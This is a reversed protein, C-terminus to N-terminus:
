PAKFGNASFYVNAGTTICAGNIATNATGKLPIPLTPSVGGGGALAYGRWIVTSGDKIEVVTSVTAHSNIITFSTIYNRIGAGAAAIISTDGTGTVAATAGQVYNETLAFPLTVQKGQLDAVFNVRDANAVATMDSSRAVGGVKVPNGSDVGDNAIDGATNSATITGDVTLSGGNDTVPQANASGNVLLPTMSAIGQVSLVDTSATGATGLAPQKASTSAGTPLACVGVNVHMRGNGDVIFTHYDGDASAMTTATDRRVGLMMVGLDGSSHAADEFKGLNTAGSGPIFSAVTVSDTDCKIVNTNINALTAETAAGTPLSITGSINVINWTGAQACITYLRGVSDSKLCQYDGNASTAGTITDDRVSLVMVGTDASAHAADEAKGLNTAGVGPIVSTVDVDGIDVGSNAGLVWTGSQTVAHTAVTVTNSVNAHLRGTSDTILPQYDGDTGATAAATDKRVSLMQVGKDGSVHAADEAFVLDDILQLSTTQSQQEALTSAGTPLPFSAATVPMPNSASVDGNNVGDVGIVIKSRPYKIGLIDDTAMTDGGSGSNLVTNDAM